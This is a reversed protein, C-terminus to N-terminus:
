LSWGFRRAFDLVAQLEMRHELQSASARALLNGPQRLLDNLAADLDEPLPLLGQTVVEPCVSVLAGAIAGFSPADRRAPTAFDLAMALNNSTEARVGLPELGFRWPIFNLVSNFDFQVHSVHGARVRPGILAAPVRIGLRGDNGLAAEAESVPALPPPVHDFFGGWEDYVVVMLTREWAPGLRLANYVGNLFAQGDRIDAQPHDDMSLGLPYTLSAGFFPDLYSVQPLTGSAAQLYFQAAPRSVPLHRAGWLATLPLDHFYYACSVGGDRCRDWITPLTSPRQQLFPLTNSMRDTEGAHMYVRNPFTNGLYSSFFRDCITYHRAVGSFFPLDAETYYGIPFVDGPQTPDTLLFGDMAGDNFHVRGGDYNHRPDGKGCGQFDGAAGRDFSPQPEGNQDLFVQGAQRGDAGPVWGLYHDFSRNEMMVVVIHDIGADKPAPLRPANASLPDGDGCGGLLMAGTGAAMGSLLRRRTSDITDM